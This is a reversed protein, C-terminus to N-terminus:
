LPHTLVLAVKSADTAMSFMSEGFFARGLAIGYVGGVLRGEEWSEVSHAYGQQHLITYLVVIEENIWTKERIDACARIVKEFARDFTVAYKEQLVTKKLRKPVHLTEIPLIGRMPPDYWGIDKGHRDDAMPFVGARYAQLILDPTLEM